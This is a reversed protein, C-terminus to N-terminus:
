QILLFFGWFVKDFFIIIFLYSKEARIIKKLIIKKELFTNQSRKKENVNGGKKLNKYIKSPPPFYRNANVL